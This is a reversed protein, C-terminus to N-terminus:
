YGKRSQSVLLRKYSPALARAVDMWVICCSILFICMQRAGLCGCAEYTMTTM